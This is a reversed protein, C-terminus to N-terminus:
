IHEFSICYKPCVKVSGSTESPAMIGGTVGAIMDDTVEQMMKENM